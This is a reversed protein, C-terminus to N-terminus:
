NCLVEPLPPSVDFDFMKRRVRSLSGQEPEPPHSIDVPLRGTVAGVGKSM